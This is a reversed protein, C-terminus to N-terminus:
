RGAGASRRSRGVPFWPLTTVLGLLLGLTFGSAVFVEIQGPRYRVIDARMLVTSDTNNTAVAQDLRESLIQVSELLGQAPAGEAIQEFLQNQLLSLRNKLQRVRERELSFTDAQLGLLSQTASDVGAVAQSRTAARVQLVLVRSGPKASIVLSRGAETPTTGMARALRGLAYDSRLLAATTDLTVVRQRENVPDLALYTVQPSVAIRATAYYRQPIAAFTVGGVVAGLLGTAVLRRWHRRVHTVYTSLQPLPRERPLAM